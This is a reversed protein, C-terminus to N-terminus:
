GWLGLNIAIVKIIEEWNEQYKELADILKITDERSWREGDIKQKL